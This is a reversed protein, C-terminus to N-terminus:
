PSIRDLDYIRIEAAEGGRAPVALYLRNEKPLFLSTRAGPATPIRVAPGFRDKAESPILDVFGAGCSLIVRRNDLDLFIDDADGDTHIDAVLTGSETDFVKMAAPRRVGVYLRHAPEDLAMPFNAYLHGSAWRSVVTNKGPDVVDVENAGPVNVFIRKGQSELQFAEPHSPLTISQTVIGSDPDVVAIGGSGYGVYLRGEGSAYRVNDADAHLDVTKVIRYSAGDILRLSGNGDAVAIRNGKALYAIGQPEGFGRLSRIAKGQALDLVEVSGNGLAAVFLRHGVTDIEMHDIRGKVGPLPISRYAPAVPGAAAAILAAPLLLLFLSALNM